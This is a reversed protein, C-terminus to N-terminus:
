NSRFSYFLYIITGTAALVLAPEFLKSVLSQSRKGKTFSFFDTEIHDIQDVNVTDSYDKKIRKNFLIRENKEIKILLQVQVTRLVNGNIKEKKEIYVVNNQVPTFEFLYIFPHLKEPVSFRSSYLEFEKEECWAKLEANIIRRFEQSDQHEKIVIVAKDDFTLRPFEDSYVSKVLNTFIELNSQQAQLCTVTALLFM